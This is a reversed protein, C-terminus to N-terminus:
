NTSAGTHLPASGSDTPRPRATEPTDVTTTVFDCGLSVSCIVDSCELPFLDSCQVPELDLYIEFRDACLKRKDSSITEDCTFLTAYDEQCQALSGYRGCAVQLQCYNTDVTDCSTGGCGVSLAPLASLLALVYIRM